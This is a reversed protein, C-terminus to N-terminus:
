VFEELVLVVLVDDVLAVFVVAIVNLGFNDPSEFM